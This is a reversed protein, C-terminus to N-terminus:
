ESVYYKILAEVFMVSIIVFWIAFIIFAIYQLIEWGCTRVYECEDPLPCNYVVMLRMSIALFIIVLSIVIGAAADSPKEAM